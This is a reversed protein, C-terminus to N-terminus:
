KPLVMAVKEKREGGNKTMPLYFIPLLPSMSLTLNVKERENTTGNERKEGVIKKKGFFKAVVNDFKAERWM